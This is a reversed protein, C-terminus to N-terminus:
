VSPGGTTLGTLTAPGGSPANGAQVLFPFPNESGTLKSLIDEVSAGIGPAGAQGTLLKALELRTEPSLSGGTLTQINPFASELSAIQNQKTTGAAEATQAPTPTAPKPASPQNALEYGTTGIGVAAAIITAITAPDEEEM